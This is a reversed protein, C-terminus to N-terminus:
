DVCESLIASATELGTGIFGYAYRESAGTRAEDGVFGNGDGDCRCGIREGIGAGAAGCLERVAVM